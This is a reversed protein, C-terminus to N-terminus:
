GLQAALARLAEPGLPEAGTLPLEVTGHPAFRERVARLVDPDVDAPVQNVIVTGLRFGTRDLQAAARDTEALVMRRPVLVLRVEADERLVELMNGRTIRQLGALAGFTLVIVPIILHLAYDGFRGWFSLEAHELSYLGGPPLWRLLGAFILVLVMGLWLPPLAMLGRIAAATLRAAASDPRWAPLPGLAAAVGDRLVEGPELVTREAPLGAVLGAIAVFASETIM